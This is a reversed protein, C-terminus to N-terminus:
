ALAPDLLARVVADALLRGRVTLVVRGRVAEAGDVLGDAVLAAVAPRARPELETVPLGDVLRVGLLVRETYRADQDLV